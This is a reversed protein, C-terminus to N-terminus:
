AGRNNMLYDMFADQFAKKRTRAIQLSDGGILCENKVVGQIMSLNVITGNNCKAFKGKPLDKEVNKISGRAEINGSTTHFILNHKQAEIYMLKSVLIRRLGNPLEINIEGGVMTKKLYEIAKNLRLCLMPYTIPKLMYDMAEVEYGKLAFKAINTEFILLVDQDKERMKRSIEIGNEKGLEIDMFIIDFTPTYQELFSFADYFKSIKFQIGNENEYLRLFDNLKNSDDQSDEVIAVNVLM